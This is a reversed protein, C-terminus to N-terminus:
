MSSEVPGDGSGDDWGVMAEEVASDMDLVGGEAGSMTGAGGDGNTTGSGDGDKAGGGCAVIVVATLLCVSPVRIRM